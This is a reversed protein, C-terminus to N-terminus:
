RNQPIFPSLVETCSEKIFSLEKQYDLNLEKKLLLSNYSLICKDRLPLDKKSAIDLAVTAGLKNNMGYARVAADEVAAYLTLSNPSYKTWADRLYKEAEEFNGKAELIYGMLLCTSTRKIGEKKELKKLIALAYDLQGSSYLGLAERYALNERDMAWSAGAILSFLLLGTLLRKLGNM